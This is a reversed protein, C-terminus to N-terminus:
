NIARNLNRNVPEPRAPLRRWRHVCFGNAYGNGAPKRKGGVNGPWFTRWRHNKTVAAA